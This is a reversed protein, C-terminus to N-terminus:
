LNSDQLARWNKLLNAPKQQFSTGYNGLNRFPRIELQSRRGDLVAVVGEVAIGFAEAISVPAGGVAALKNVRERDQASLPQRGPSKADNMREWAAIAGAAVEGRRPIYTDLIRRTQEITHGSVAAIQADTAGAEAM